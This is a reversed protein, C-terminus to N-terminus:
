NKIVETPNMQIFEYGRESILSLTSDTASPAVIIGRKKVGDITKMYRELQDVSNMDAKKRKVEIITPNKEKDEGFVDIFGYETEKEHELVRFGDEIFSPNNIIYEHMENETGEVEGYDTSASYHISKHINTFRITLEESPSTRKSEVLVDGDNDLRIDTEADKPQWNAPKINDSEHVLVAGSPNIVISRRGEELYKWARGEYNVTCDGVLIIIEGAVHANLLKNVAKRNTDSPSVDEKYDM